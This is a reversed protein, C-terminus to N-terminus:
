VKKLFTTQDSSLFFCQKAIIVMTINDPVLPLSALWLVGDWTHLVPTAADHQAAAKSCSPSSCKVFYIADDPLFLIHIYQLLM